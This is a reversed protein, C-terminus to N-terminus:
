KSFFSKIRQWMNKKTDTHQKKREIYKKVGQQGKKDKDRIMQLVVKNDSFTADNVTKSFGPSPSSDGEKRKKNWAAFFADQAEYKHENIVQRKPKKNTM